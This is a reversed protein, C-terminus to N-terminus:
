DPLPIRGSAMLFMRAIEPGLFSFTRRLTKQLEPLEAGREPSYHWDCFSGHERQISQVTLANVVCAEIKKRNRVIARDQMLREVDELGMGAVMGVDWGHFAARFADRRNVIMNWSLGAQFVQLGMLEFLADDDTVRKGWVGQYWENPEM